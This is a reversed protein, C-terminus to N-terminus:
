EIIEFDTYNDCSGVFVALNQATWSSRHTKTCIAATNIQEDGTIPLLCLCNRSDQVPKVNIDRYYRSQAVRIHIFLGIVGRSASTVRYFLPEASCGGLVTMM